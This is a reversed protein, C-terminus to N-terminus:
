YTVVPSSRSASELVNGDEDLIKGLVIIKYDGSITLSYTKNLTAGIVGSGTGTWYKVTVWISGNWRMLTMRISIDYSSASAVWGYCSATSGTISLGADITSIYTYCPTIVDASGAPAAVTSTLIILVCILLVSARKM